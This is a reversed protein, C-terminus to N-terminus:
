FAISKVELCVSICNNKNLFGGLTENHARLIYAVVILKGQM